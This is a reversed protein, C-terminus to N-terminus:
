NEYKKEGDWRWAKGQPRALCKRTMAERM